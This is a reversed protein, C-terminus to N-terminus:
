QFMIANTQYYGRVRVVFNATRGSFDLAEVNEIACNFIDYPPLTLADTRVVGPGLLANFQRAAEYAAALPQSKLMYIDLSIMQFPEPSTVVGTMTPLFATTAGEFTLRAGEPAFFPATVNLNPFLPFQVSTIVRNLVGQIVQPNGPM